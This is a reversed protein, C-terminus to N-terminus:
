EVELFPFCDGLLHTEHSIVRLWKALKLDRCIKEFFRKVYRNRCELEFGNVPYLSYFDIASAVKPENEYFFRLWQYIERRKAPIQWNIPTHVPSFFQPQGYILGSSGYRYLNHGTRATASPAYNTAPLVPGTDEFRTEPVPEGRRLARFVKDLDTTIISPNGM